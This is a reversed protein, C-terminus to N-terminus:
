RAPCDYFVCLQSVDEETIETYDGNQEGMHPAMLSEGSEVQNHGVGLFHDAEHAVLNSLFVLYIDRNAQHNDAGGPFNYWYLLIDTHLGYGYLMSGPSYRSTYNVELWTSDANPEVFKYVTHRGDDLDDSTFEDDEYTGMFEFFDVGTADELREMGVILAEQEDAEWQSDLWIEVPGDGLNQGYCGSLVFVVAILLACASHRAM